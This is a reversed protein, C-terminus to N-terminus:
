KCLIPVHAETRIGHQDCRVQRAGRRAQRGVRHRFGKLLPIARGTPCISQVIEVLARRTLTLALEKPIDDDPLEARCMPCPIMASTPQRKIVWAGLCSTCFNHGCRTIRLPTTLIPGAVLCIVCEAEYSFADATAVPAVLLTSGSGGDDM